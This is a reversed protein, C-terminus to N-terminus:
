HARTAADLIQQVRGDLIPSGIEIVLYAAALIVALKLCDSAVRGACEVSAAISELQCDTPTWTMLRQWLTKSPIMSKSIM